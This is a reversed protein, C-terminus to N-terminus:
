SRKKYSVKQHGQFILFRLILFAFSLALVVILNFQLELLGFLWVVLYLLTLAAAILLNINFIGVIYLCVSALFVFIPALQPKLFNSSLVALGLVDFGLCFLLVLKFLDKNKGKSYINLEQSSFYSSRKLLHTNYRPSHRVVATQAARQSGTSWSKSTKTPKLPLPESNVLDTKMVNQQKPSAKAPLLSPFIYQSPEIQKTQRLEEFERLNQVAKSIGQAVDEFARDRDSWQTVAKGNSPLTEFESFPLGYYDGPRLKIPIIYARNEKRRQLAYDMERSFHYDSAIFHPSLLLLIISSESMYRQIQKQWDKGSSIKGKHLGQIEGRRELACLHKELKEVLATDEDAYSYFLYYPTQKKQMPDM